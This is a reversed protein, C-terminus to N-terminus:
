STPMGLASPSLAPGGQELAELSPTITSEYPLLQCLNV